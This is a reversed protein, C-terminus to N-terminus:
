TFRKNKGHASEGEQAGRQGRRVRLCGFAATIDADLAMTKHCVIIDNIDEGGNIGGTRAREGGDEADVVAAPGHAATDIFASFEMSEQIFASFEMSEQLVFPM